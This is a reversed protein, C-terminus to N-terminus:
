PQGIKDGLTMAREAQLVLAYSLRDFVRFVMALGSREDPLQILDGSIPDTVRQGERSIAVVNGAEVASQRGVNFVVIDYQGVQEVGDIVALIEGQLGKPPPSPVFDATSEPPQPLLRDGARIEQTARSLLVRTLGDARSHVDAQGVSIAEVGLVQGSDPDSFLRGQRYVGYRELGYVAEARVYAVDGDGSLIKGDQQALVYPANDLEGPAVFQSANLYPGIVNFPLTPIAGALPEPRAKPSLKIIQNRDVVLRPQGNVYVLRVRDGPYILHPNAIEPNAQWIEPWLWPSQLFRSSIDWLTDGKVVTYEDPHDSRLTSDAQASWGILLGLALLLRPLRM